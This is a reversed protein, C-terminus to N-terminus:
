SADQTFFHPPLTRAPPPRSHLPSLPTSSLSFPSDRSLRENLRHSSSPALNGAIFRPGASKKPHTGNAWQGSEGSFRYGSRRPSSFSIAKIGDEIMGDGIGRYRAHRVSRPIQLRSVRAHRRLRDGNREYLNCQRTCNRCFCYAISGQLNIRSIVPWM